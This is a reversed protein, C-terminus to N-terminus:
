YGGCHYIVSFSPSGPLTGIAYILFKNNFVAAPIQFANIGFGNPTAQCLAQTPYAVPLTVTMILGDASPSGGPNFTIVGDTQTGVIAGTAAGTLGSGPGYVGTPTTGTGVYAPASVATSFTSDCNTGDALCILQSNVTSGTPFHQVMSFTNVTNMRALNATDSLNTSALPTGSIDFSTADVIGAFTSHAANLKALNTCDSLNTCAVQSGAVQLQSTANFISATQTGGTYTNAANLKALNAQDSLVASTIQTGNLRYPLSGTANFFPAAIGGTFTCGAISCFPGNVVYSWTIGSNPFLQVVYLNPAALAGVYFTYNGYQDAAAPNGIPNTLGYDLYITATPTCPDGTSTVSCIRVSAFAIPVGYQDVAQGSIVAVQANAVAAALLVALIMPIKRLVSM